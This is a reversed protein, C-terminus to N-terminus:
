QNLKEPSKNPNIKETNGLISSYNGVIFVVRLNKTELKQAKIHSTMPDLKENGSYVNPYSFRSTFDLYYVLTLILSFAILLRLFFPKSLDM